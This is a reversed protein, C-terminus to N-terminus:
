DLIRHFKTPMSSLYKDLEKNGPNLEKFQTVFDMLAEPNANTNYLYETIANFAPNIGNITQLRVENHDSFKLDQYSRNIIDKPIINIAKLLGLYYQSKNILSADTYNNDNENLIKSAEAFTEKSIQANKNLLQIDLADKILKGSERAEANTSKSLKCSSIYIEDIKSQNWKILESGYEAKILDGTEHYLDWFKIIVQERLKSKTNSDVNQNNVEHIKTEFASVIESLRKLTAYSTIIVKLDSGGAIESSWPTKTDWYLSRLENLKRQQNLSLSKLDEDTKFAYADATLNFIKSDREVSIGYRELSEIPLNSFAILLPESENFHTKYINTNILDKVIEKSTELSYELDYKKFQKNLEDFASSSKLSVPVKNIYTEIEDRAQLLFIADDSKKSNLKGVLDELKEPNRLEQDAKILLGLELKGIISSLTSGKEGNRKVKVAEGYLFDRKFNETRTELHNLDTEITKLRLKLNIFDEEKSHDIGDNSLEQLELKCKIKEQIISARENYISKYENYASMVEFNTKAYDEKSLRSSLHDLCMLGSQNQSSALNQSFKPQNTSLDVEPPVNLTTLNRNNAIHQSQM